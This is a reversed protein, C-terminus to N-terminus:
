DGAGAADAVKDFSQLALYRQGFRQIHEMQRNFQDFHKEEDAVLWGFLQTSVADENDGCEVAAKNYDAASQREMGAARALMEVPDTITQVAEAPSMDVDGGLFLIREALREVHGM